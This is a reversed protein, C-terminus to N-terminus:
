IGGSHCDSCLWGMEYEDGPHKFPQGKSDLKELEEGSGQALIIHCTDCRSLELVKEGDESQHLDDHCRFCGPWEKHGINNPYARWDAKMGPFFNNRYIAQVEAIAQAVKEAPQDAYEEKFVEEIRALAEEKTEYEECLVTMAKEKISPLSRDLRGLAIANNVAKNPSLFNHAPRNHCDMCDMVRLKSEDVEGEFDETKYVTVSGDSHTVRVWPIEQRQEDAAYYEVKNAVNMHWHIGGVPGRNPDAGGVKLELKVAYETSNEDTLYSHVTKVVDGVFAAPWHCQECTDQAPRLNKIPTPVPRPYKEFLTAYVQYAGSLKSKVFWTAGPGIHCEVCAVRAHPGQEYTTMEPEMVSHCVKGCFEVSETLHFTQYSGIASLLMFGVTCVAAIILRQRHRAQTLDIILPRLRHTRRIRRREWWVGYLMLAFGLMMFAPSVVYALIGVYPNGTGMFLETLWLLFFSFLAGVVILLGFMSIWNQLLKPRSRGNTTQSETSM